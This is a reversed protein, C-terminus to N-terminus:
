KDIDSPTMGCIQNPNGPIILRMKEGKDGGAGDTSSERKIKVASRRLTDTRELTLSKAANAAQLEEAKKQLAAFHAKRAQIRKDLYTVTAYELHRRCRRFSFLFLSSIYSVKAILTM